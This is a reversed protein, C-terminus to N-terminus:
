CLFTSVLALYLSDYGYIGQFLHIDFYTAKFADLYGDQKNHIQECQTISKETQVNNSRMNQRRYDDCIDIM